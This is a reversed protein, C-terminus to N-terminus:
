DQWMVVALHRASADRYFDPLASFHGQVYALADDPMEGGKLRRGASAVTVRNIPNLKALASIAENVELVGAPKLSSVPHEWVTHPSDRYAPNVEGDGTMARDLAAALAMPVQADTAVERLLRPAWDLDLYDELPLARFSCVSDLEEVSVACRALLAEDLRALNQTVAVVGTDRRLV